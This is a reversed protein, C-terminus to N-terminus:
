IDIVMFRAHPQTHAQAERFVVQLHEFSQENTVDYILMVGDAGRYYSVTITRFREPGATDWIQMKVKVTDTLTINRIKFDVGITALYADSFCNDAFRLLLSSKGVCCDGVLLLRLLYDYDFNPKHKMTNRSLYHDEMQPFTQYCHVSERLWEMYRQKCTQALPTRTTFWSPNCLPRWVRDSGALEHFMRSVLSLSLLDDIGRPLMDVVQAWVEVPLLLTTAEVDGAGVAGVAGVANSNGETMVVVQQQQEDMKKSTHAM